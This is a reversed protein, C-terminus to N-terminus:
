DGSDGLVNWGQSAMGLLSTADGISVPIWEVQFGAHTLHVTLDEEQWAQQGTLKYACGVWQRLVVPGKLYGKVVILFRGGPCLVRAVASLTTSSFIFGAPFTALVNAFTDNKFPLHDARGRVLRSPCCMRKLRRGAIRGMYPSLDLGVPNRGQAYLDALLGGTGYALDLTDGELLYPMVARRWDAWQGFSVLDAVLDYSFAFQNYLLHFGLRLVRGIFGSERM